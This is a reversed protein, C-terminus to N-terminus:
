SKNDNKWRHLYQIASGLIEVSEFSMGILVNCANCLLDRNTGTEHNHDIRPTEEFEKRCIACRNEQKIRRAEFEEPSVGYMRQRRDALRKERVRPYYVTSYYLKNRALEKERRKWYHRKNRESQTLPHDAFVRKM